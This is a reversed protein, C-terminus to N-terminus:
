CIQVGYELFVENEDAWKRAIKYAEDLNQPRHLDHQQCKHKGGLKILEGKM